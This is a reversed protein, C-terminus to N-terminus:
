PSTRFWVIDTCAWESWDHRVSQLETCQLRGPEETWPIRWPLTISSHTAKGKELPDECGLSQVWTEQLQQMAPLNKVVLGSPFGVPAFDADRSFKTYILVEYVFFFFIVFTGLYNKFPKWTFTVKKSHVTTVTNSVIVCHFGLNQVGSWRAQFGVNKLGKIKYQLM